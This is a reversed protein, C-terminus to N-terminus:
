HLLGIEIKIVVKAVATNIGDAVKPMHGDDPRFISFVGPSMRLVGSPHEPPHYHVVDKQADYEDKPKLSDRSEWEICEGGSICYQLDIYRRHSEYRCAERRQTEYGHVNAFMQEGRLPHIGPVLDPPMGRLWNLAEVWVPHTLFGAYTDLVDLKGCLM